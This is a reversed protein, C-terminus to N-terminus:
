YQQTKKDASTVSNDLNWQKNEMVSEHLLSIPLVRTDVNNYDVIDIFFHGM